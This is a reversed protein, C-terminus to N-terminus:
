FEDAEPNSQKLRMLERRDRRDPRMQPASMPGLLRRQKAVEARREASEPTERYLREAEAASGRRQAIATIVVIYDSEGRSIELETGVGVEKSPKARQGGCHVRGGDIADKAASRTKYFSAAWLWRDLRVKAPDNSADNSSDKV